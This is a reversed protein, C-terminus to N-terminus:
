GLISLVQNSTPTKLGKLTVKLIGNVIQLSQCKSQSALLAEVLKIDNPDTNTGSKVSEIILDVNM